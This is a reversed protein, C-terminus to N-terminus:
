KPAEKPAREYYYRKWMRWLNKERLFVADANLLSREGVDWPNLVPQGGGDEYQCAMELFQASYRTPKFAPASGM